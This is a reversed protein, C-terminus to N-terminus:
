TGSVSTAIRESHQDAASSGRRSRRSRVRTGALWFSYALFTIIPIEVFMKLRIADTWVPGLNEEGFIFRNSWVIPVSVLAYYAFFWGYRRIVRLTGSLGTCSIFTVIAVLGLLAYRWGSFVWDFAARWPLERVMLNDVYESSPRLLQPVTIGVSRWAAVAAGAPDSLLVQNSWETLRYNDRIADTTNWRSQFADGNALIDDPFDPEPVTHPDVWLLGVRHYGAYTTTDWTGYLVLQKIPMVWLAGTLVIALAAATFQRPRALFLCCLVMVAVFILVHIQTAPRALSSFLLSALFGCLYWANRKRLFTFLFYFSFTLGLMALATPDLLMMNTLFGPSIAWVGMVAGAWWGNRTLDRIWLYLAMCVLGFCLAHLKYLNLDVAAFNPPFGYRLEPISFFYRFADLLPPYVHKLWLAEPGFTFLDALGLNQMMQESPWEQLLYGQPLRDVNQSRFWLQWWYLGLSSGVAVLVPVLWAPRHLRIRSRTTDVDSM